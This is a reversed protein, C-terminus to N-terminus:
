PAMRSRAMHAALAAVLGPSSHERAVVDVGYGSARAAAATAPGICAVVKTGTPGLGLAEPPGVVVAFGRATSGSTFTVADFNGASVERATETRGAVVNRYAGVEEPTWGAARLTDVIESPAGAARLLLVRGPGPGLAAALAVATHEQPMLDPPRGRSELAAGTAPGVAAVRAARLADLASPRGLVTAVSNASTFVVWDFQHTAVRQLVADVAAWTRPPAIEIVPVYLVRAGREGLLRGLAGAQRRARTVVVRM